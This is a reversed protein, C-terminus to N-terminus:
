QSARRFAFSFRAGGYSSPEVTLRTQHHECIRRAIALGLGFGSPFSRRGAVGRTFPDFIQARERVEIGPGSDDVHLVVDDSQTCSSIRVLGGSPTYRIANEVINLLASLLAGEGTEWRAAVTDDSLATEITVRQASAQPAVLVLVHDILQNLPPSSAGSASDTEARAIELLATALQSLRQLESLCLRACSQWESQPRVNQLMVQLDTSMVALPTRLEHSIDAAFRDLTQFRSELRARMANLALVLARIEGEDAPVPLRAGLERATMTATTEIVQVLPLLARRTAAAAAAAAVFLGIPAGILVSYGVEARTESLIVEWQDANPQVVEEAITV